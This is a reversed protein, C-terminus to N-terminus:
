QQALFLTRFLYGKEIEARGLPAPLFLGKERKSPPPLSFCLCIRSAGKHCSGLMQGERPPLASLVEVRVGLWKRVPGAGERPSVM